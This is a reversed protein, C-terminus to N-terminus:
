HAWRLCFLGQASHGRKKGWRFQGQTKQKKEWRFKSPQVAADKKVHDLVATTTEGDEHPVQGGAGQAGVLPRIVGYGGKVQVVWHGESQVSLHYVDHKVHHTM